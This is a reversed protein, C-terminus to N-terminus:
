RFNPTKINQAGLLVLKFGHGSRRSLHLLSGHLVVACAFFYKTPAASGIVLSLHVACSHMSLIIIDRAM